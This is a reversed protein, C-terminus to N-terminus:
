ATSSLRPIESPSMALGPRTIRARPRMQRPRKKPPSPQPSPPSRPKRRSTAEASFGHESLSQWVRFVSTSFMDFRACFSSPMFLSRIGCGAFNCFAGLFLCICGHPLCPSDLSNFPHILLSGQSGIYSCALCSVFSLFYIHRSDAGLDTSQRLLLYVISGLIDSVIYAGVDEIELDLWAILGM